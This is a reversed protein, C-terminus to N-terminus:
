QVEFSIVDQPRQDISVVLQYKGPPWPDRNRLSFTTVTAATPVLAQESEAVTAGTETTWKASLKLGQHSGTSLVSAYIRDKPDFVTKGVPVQQEADVSNGLTISVIKFGGMDVPAPESDGSFMAFLGSAPKKASANSAPAAAGNAATSATSAAPTSARQCAALSLLCLLCIAAYRM